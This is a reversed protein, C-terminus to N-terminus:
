FHGNEVREALIKAKKSKQTRPLKHYQLIYFVKAEDEFPGDDKHLSIRRRLLRKGSVEHRWLFTDENVKLTSIRREKALESRKQKYGPWWKGNVLGAQSGMRLLRPRNVVVFAYDPRNRDDIADSVEGEEAFLTANQLICLAEPRSLFRDLDGISVLLDPVSAFGHEGPGNWNEDDM